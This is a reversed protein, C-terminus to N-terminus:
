SRATVPTMASWAVAGVGRAVVVMAVPATSAAAAPACAAARRFGSRVRSAVTRQMPVTSLAHCLARCLPDQTDGVLNTGFTWRYTM